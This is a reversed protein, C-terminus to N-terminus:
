GISLQVKAPQMIKADGHSISLTGDEPVVVTIAGSSGVTTSVSGYQVTFATQIETLALTVTVATGSDNRYLERTVEPRINLQGLDIVGM